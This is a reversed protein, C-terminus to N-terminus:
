IGNIFDKSGLNNLIRAPIGAVTVHPPIDKTVVSNAGIAVYDGIKIKGFIKSGVGIFVNDGIVPCGKNEGRGAEGIVAGAGINCNAGIIAEGSIILM